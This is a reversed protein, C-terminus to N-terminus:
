NIFCEICTIVKENLGVFSSVIYALLQTFKVDVTKLVLTTIM